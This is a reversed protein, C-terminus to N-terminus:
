QLFKRDNCFKITQKIKLDLLKKTRKLINNTKEKKILLNKLNTEFLSQEKINQALVAKVKSTIIFFQTEDETGVVYRKVDEIKKITEEIIPKSEILIKQQIKLIKIGNLGYQITLIDKSLKFYQNKLKKIKEKSKNCEASKTRAQYDKPFAYCNNEYLENNKANIEKLKNELESFYLKERKDAAKYDLVQQKQKNQIEIVIRNNYSKDFRNDTDNFICFEIRKLNILNAGYEAAIMPCFVFNGYCPYSFLKKYYENHDALAEYYYLKRYPGIQIYCQKNIEEVKKEQLLDNEIKLKEKTLREQKIQEQLKLSESNLIIYENMLKKCIPSPTVPGFYIKRKETAM